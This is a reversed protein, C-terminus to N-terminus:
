LYLMRCVSVNQHLANWQYQLKGCKRQFRTGEGLYSIAIEFVFILDTYVNIVWNKRCCFKFVPHYCLSQKWFTLLAWPIALCSNATQHFTQICLWDGACLLIISCASMFMCNWLKSDSLSSTFLLRPLWSFGNTGEFKRWIVDVAEWSRCLVFLSDSVM